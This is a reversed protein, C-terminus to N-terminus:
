IFDSHRITVTVPQTDLVGVAFIRTGRPFNIQTWNGPTIASNVGNVGLTVPVYCVLTLYRRNHYDCVYPVNASIAISEDEFTRQMKADDVLKKLNNDIREIQRLVPNLLPKLLFFVHEITRHSIHVSGLVDEISSTEQAETRNTVDSLDTDDTTDEQTPTFDSARQVSTDPKDENFLDLLNKM